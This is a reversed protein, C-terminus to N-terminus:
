DSPKRPTAMESKNSEKITIEDKEKVILYSRNPLYNFKLRDIGRSRIYGDYGDFYTNKDPKFVSDFGVVVEHYRPTVEVSKVGRGVSVTKNGDIHTIWLEYKESGSPNRDEVAVTVTADGVPPIYKPSRDIANLVLTTCSTFPLCGFLLLLPKIRM